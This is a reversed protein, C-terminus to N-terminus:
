MGVKRSSPHYIGEFEEKMKIEEQFKLNLISETGGTKGFSGDGTEYVTLFCGDGFPTSEGTKTMKRM